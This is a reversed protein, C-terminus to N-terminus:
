NEATKRYALTDPFNIRRLESHYDRTFEGAGLVLYGEPKLWRLLNSIIDRRRERNFYILVNQCFIIDMQSLVMNKMEVINFPVFCVRKKIKEAIRYLGDEDSEFYNKMFYSPVHRTKFQSYAAKRATAMAPRSIDMGTVALYCDKFDTKLTNASQTIIYDMAIMALTYTEEGTSCGASWINLCDRKKDRNFLEPLIVTQLLNISAKHRFFRTEHITLRDVLTQWEYKGHRTALLQIYYDSYGRVGIEKMRLGISTELFSRRERSLYIGTREELLDSWIEFQEDNMRPFDSIAEKLIEM